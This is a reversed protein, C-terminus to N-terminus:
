LEIPIEAPSVVPAGAVSGATGPAGLWWCMGSLACGVLVTEALHLASDFVFTCLVGSSLAFTSMFIFSMLSSALGRTQPFTNLIIMMMAPGAAAMGMNFFFPPIVAWPLTAPFFWNYTVNIVSSVAMLLYGLRIIAQPRYRHSLRASITSGAMMGAILPIFLWGFDRATLHLISYIFAPAAGIYLSTGIFTLANALCMLLFSLHSGVKWYNGLIVKFHFPHRKSKELSEPLLRLSIALLVVSFLVIFYFIFRWGFVFQLWGGVIPALAPAIAFFLQIFSMIRQAEPGHYLDGVVARGVVNGAGASIGQLLRFLMLWGFSPAFACGVSALLYLVLGGLIVPRRGLSDSLTGYFLTMFAWGVLCVTLSQQAATASVTFERGIAPLAPLYCDISLAGIMSLSGLLFILTTPKM